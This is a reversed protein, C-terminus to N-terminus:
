TFTYYQLKLFSPVALIDPPVSIVLCREPGGENWTLQPILQPHDAEFLNRSPIEKEHCRICTTCLHNLEGHMFSKQMGNDDRDNEVIEKGDDDIHDCDITM